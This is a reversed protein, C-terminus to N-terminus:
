INLKFKFTMSPQFITQIKAMYIIEYVTFRLLIKKIKSHWVTDCYKEVCIYISQQQNQWVICYM